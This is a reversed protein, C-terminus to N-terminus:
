TKRRGCPNPLKLMRSFMTPVLQTHTVQHAAILDLYGEPDFREMVVVTGGMRLTLGTAANPASHYLPAPSLYVMDERYGWLQALMGFMPLQEDPAVDELPRLIGKPRGTTGSSYLMSTGLREDALPTAPQDALAADFDRVSGEGSGGGVVLCAKIGPAAALAEQAVALKDTSTILVQSESNNLIYALEDPQLYSNICTYYLGAREGASCCILYDANNEMFVAYHDLRVLGQGRLWHALQNAKAEFDAYTVVQGSDAMIVAARNPHQAAYQGPYM